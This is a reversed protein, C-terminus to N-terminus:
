LTRGAFFAGAKLLTGSERRPRGNGRRLRRPDGATQFPNQSRPGGEARRDAQKVRSSPPGPDAGPGRAAEAHTTDSKRHLEVAQRKFEPAHKPASAM